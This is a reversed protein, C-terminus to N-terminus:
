KVQRTLGASTVLCGQWWVDWGTVNVCVKSAKLYKHILSAPLMQPPLSPAFATINVYRLYIVTSNAKIVATFASVCTIAKIKSQHSCIIASETIISDPAPPMCVCVCVPRTHVTEAAQVHSNGGDRAEKKTKTQTKWGLAQNLHFTVKLPFNSPFLVVSPINSTYTAPLSHSHWAIDAALVTERKITSKLFENTAQITNTNYCIYGGPLCM